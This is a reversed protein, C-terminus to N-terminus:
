GVRFLIASPAYGYLERAMTLLSEPSQQHGIVDSGAHRETLQERRVRGAPADCDADIFVVLRARNIREILEPLLQHVALVEVLQRPLQERLAEAAAPGAGDDGRLENGYGVVLIPPDIENFKM